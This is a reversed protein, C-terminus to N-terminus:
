RMTGRKRRGGVETAAPIPPGPQAGGAAPPIGAWRPSAPPLAPRSSPLSPKAPRRTARGRRPPGPSSGPGAAAGGSAQSSLLKTAAPLGEPWLPMLVPPSPLSGRASVGTEAPLAPTQAARPPPDHPLEAPVRLCLRRRLDTGGAVGPGREAGAASPPRRQRGKEPRPAAPTRGEPFRLIPCAAERGAAAKGPTRPSGPCLQGNNKNRATEEGQPIGGARGRGRGPKNKKHNLSLVPANEPQGVEGGGRTGAAGPSPPAPCGRRPPGAAREAPSAPDQTKTQFRKWTPFGRYTHTYKIRSSTVPNETNLGLPSNAM